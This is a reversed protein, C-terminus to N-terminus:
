RWGWGVARQMAPDVILEDKIKKSSCNMQNNSQDRVLDMWNDPRAFPSFTFLFMELPFSQEVEV